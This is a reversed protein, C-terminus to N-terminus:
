GELWGWKNSAKSLGDGGWLPVRASKSPGDEGDRSLSELTRLDPVDGGADTWFPSQIM